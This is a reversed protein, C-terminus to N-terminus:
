GEIALIYPTLVAFLGKEFANGTITGSSRSILLDGGIRFDGRQDTSTYLVKGGNLEVVENEQIPVGGTQPLATILDTGSGVFEFTHGSAYMTSRQYFEAPTNDAIEVIVDELLTVASTGNDLPTAVAVTYFTLGGDFTVGDNVRPRTTLDYVNIVNGTQNVGTTLGAYMLASTGKAQLGINGFSSNSNTISCSAGNECLIGINCCITFISVLQSYGGNDIHIGIGGSNFQTYADMVMSKVGSVVNGDIYAGKGTTTISSCNQIYPSTVIFGASGDPNFSFAAAGNIHDRFTIGTVYCKNNVYFIDLSPNAPRISVTRLNDGVIAVGAPITMPNDETYDGSKVFITTGNTAVALAAKVTLFSSELTLGDNSDSGSKSVYIVNEVDGSPIDRNLEILNTGDSTYLVRDALNLALEGTEIYATNAPDTVNPTRGPIATRKIRFKDYTKSM